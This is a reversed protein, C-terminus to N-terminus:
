DGTLLPLVVNPIFDLLFHCFIVVWLNRKWLYLATLASGMLLTVLMGGAGQTYHSAAFILLPLLIAVVKNGFLQQLRGIAYGRYFLEEVIGARLVVVITVWMPLKVPVSGPASGFRLGLVNVALLGIALAVACGVLGILTWLAIRGAPAPVFGVSSLPQREKSRVIWILLLALAFITLERMMAIPATPPGFVARTAAALLPVALLSIILGLGIWSKSAGAATTGNDM